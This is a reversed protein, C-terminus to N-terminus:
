ARTVALLSRRFRNTYNRVSPLNELGSVRGYNTALPSIIHFEVVDTGLAAGLGPEALFM